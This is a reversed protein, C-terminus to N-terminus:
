EARFQTARGLKQPSKHRKHFGYNQCTDITYVAVNYKAHQKENSM